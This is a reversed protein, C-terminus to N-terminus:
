VNSGAGVDDTNVSYRYSTTAVFAVPQRNAESFIAYRGGGFQKALAGTNAFKKGIMYSNVLNALERADTDTAGLCLADVYSYYEDHTPGMFSGGGSRPMMDTFRLIVYPNLRGDELPLSDGDPIAGTEVTFQPISAQLYAAIAQQASFLDLGVM